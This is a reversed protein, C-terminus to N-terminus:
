LDPIKPTPYLLRMTLVASAVILAADLSWIAATQPSWENAVYERPSPPTEPRFMAVQPSKERSAKWQRCFDVYLWTHEALTTVIAFVVSGIVLRRQSTIEQSAALKALIAGLLVGVALSVLGIPAHGSAHILSALWGIAIAAVAGAVSWILM